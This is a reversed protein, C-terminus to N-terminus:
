WYWFYMSNCLVLSLDTCHYIYIIYSVRNQTIAVSESGLVLRTAAETFIKLGDIPLYEHDLMSDSSMQTEITRVVPLVWPLGQEDRYALCM